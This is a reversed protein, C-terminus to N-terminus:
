SRVSMKQFVFCICGFTKCHKVSPKLDFLAEYPTKDKLSNAPSRNKVYVATALAEAWFSKPLKSGSLM